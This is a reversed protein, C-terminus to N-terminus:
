VLPLLLSFFEEIEIVYFVASFTRCTVVTFKFTATAHAPIHIREHEKSKQM